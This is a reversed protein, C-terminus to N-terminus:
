FYTLDDDNNHAVSQEFIKMKNGIIKQEKSETVAKKIFFM